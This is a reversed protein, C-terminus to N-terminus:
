AEVLVATLAMVCPPSDAPPKLYFRLGNNAFSCCVLFNDNHVFLQIEDLVCLEVTLRVDDMCYDVLAQWEGNKAMEIAQLGTASKCELGNLALMKDLKCTIGFCMKMSHFPDCLKHLWTDVIDDPLQLQLKMFPIDFLVANYACLREAADFAAILEQRLCQKGAEDAQGLM